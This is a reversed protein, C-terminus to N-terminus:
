KRPLHSTIQHFVLCRKLSKSELLVLFIFILWLMCLALLVWTSTNQKWCTRIHSSDSSRNSITAQITIIVTTILTNSTSTCVRQSSSLYFLLWIAKYNSIPWWIIMMMSSICDIWEDLTFPGLSYSAKCVVRFFLLFETYLTGVRM